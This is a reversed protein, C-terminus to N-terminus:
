GIHFPNGILIRYFGTRTRHGIMKLQVFAPKELNNDPWYQYYHGQNVTPRLSEFFATGRAIKRSPFGLQDEPLRAAIESAVDDFRQRAELDNSFLRSDLQLAVLRNGNKTDFQGVVAAIDSLWPEVELKCAVYGDAVDQCATVRDQVTELTDYWNFGLTLGEYGDWRTSMLLRLHVEPNGNLAAFNFATKGDDTMVTPDAGHATLIAIKETNGSIAARMLPTVGDRKTDLSINHRSLIGLGATLTEADGLEVLRHAVDPSPIQGRQLLADAAGANGIFLAHDVAPRFGTGWRDNGFINIGAVQIPEPANDLLETLADTNDSALLKPLEKAFVAEPDLIAQQPKAEIVPAPSTTTQQVPKSQLEFGPLPARREPIRNQLAVSELKSLPSLGETSPAEVNSRSSDNGRWNGRAETVSALRTLLEPNNAAFEFPGLSCGDLADLSAGFETLTLATAIHGGASALSLPTVCGYRGGRLDPNTGTRLILHLPDTLGEEAAVHLISRDAGVPASPDAGAMLLQEVALPVSHRAALLLVPTGNLDRANPDAGSLLAARLAAPDRSSALQILEQDSRRTQTVPGAEPQGTLSALMARTNDPALAAIGVGILISAALASGLLAAKSVTSPSGDTSPMATLSTAPRESAHLEKKPSPPLLADANGVVEPEEIAQDEPAEDRVEPELTLLTEFVTQDSSTDFRAMLLRLSTFDGSKALDSLRLVAETKDAIQDLNRWYQGSQGQLWYVPAPIEDGLPGDNENTTMVCVAKQCVCAM